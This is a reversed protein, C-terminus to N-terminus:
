LARKKQYLKSSLAYNILWWKNAIIAGILFLFLGWNNTAIYPNTPLSQYVYFIKLQPVQTAWVKLTQWTM